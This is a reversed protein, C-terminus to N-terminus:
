ISPPRPRFPTVNGSSEEIEEEDLFREIDAAIVQRIRQYIDDRGVMHAATSATRGLNDPLTIDVGEQGCLFEVVEFNGDFAAIHLATVGVNPETENICDPNAELARKIEDLDHNTAGRIINPEDNLDTYQQLIYQQEIM